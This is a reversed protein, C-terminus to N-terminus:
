AAWREILEQLKKSRRGRQRPPQWRALPVQYKLLEAVSWCHDALGAAMAPTQRTSWADALVLSAHYSCFNYVTGVLYMAAHLRSQQRAGHRTRRGLRALRSRFTANLREIYSTNLGGGGQTTAVLASALTESGVAIRRTVDVLRRRVTHKIVQGITLEPWPVLAPRKGPRPERTRCARRLAAIYSVLGDVMVLLTAVVACRAILDALQRILAMDRTSSLVGGLWLRTGVQMAMAMWVVGEQTKVRLEDAQVQGL